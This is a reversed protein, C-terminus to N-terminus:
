YDHMNAITLSTYMNFFDKYYKKKKIPGYFKQGSDLNHVAYIRKRESKNLRKGANTRLGVV